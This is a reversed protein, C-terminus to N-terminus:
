AHESVRECITSYVGDPLNGPTIFPRQVNKSLFVTKDLLDALAPLAGFWEQARRTVIIIRGERAARDVLAFTYQQSPLRVHGHGFRQSRYPFFEVSCVGGAAKGRGVQRALQGLTKRWWPNDSSIGLHPTHDDRISALEAAVARPDPSGNPVDLDYSPNAQLVYVPADVPGLRPEPTYKLNIWLTAGETCLRNYGRVFPADQPLVYDPENPIEAWPNKIDV